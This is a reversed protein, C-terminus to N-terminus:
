KLNELVEEIYEIFYKLRVQKLKQGVCVIKNLNAKILELNEVDGQYFDKVNIINYISRFASYYFSLEKMTAREIIGKFKDVDINQAFGKNNSSFNRNYCYDYFDQASLELLASNVDAFEKDKGKRKQNVEFKLKDYLDKFKEYEKGQLYIGDHYTSLSVVQDNNKINTLMITHVEDLNTENFLRSYYVCYSLFPKYVNFPIKNEKLAKLNEKYCSLYEEDTDFSDMNMFECLTVNAKEFDLAQKRENNIRCYEGKIDQPVVNVFFYEYIYKYLTIKNNKEWEIELFPKNDFDPKRNIISSGTKIKISLYFISTIIKKIEEKSLANCADETILEVCKQFAYIATRLNFHKDIIAKFYLWELVDDDVIKELITNNFYKNIIERLSSVYETEFKLTDIITKEKIKKYEQAKDDLVWIEKEEEEGDKNKTKIKEIHTTLIEKENAIIIVKSGDEETLSNVFGLVKLVDVGSRELDELILVTKSLDFNKFLKEFDNDSINFNLDFGTTLKLTSILIQGGFRCINSANDILAKKTRTPKKLKNTRLAIFIRKSLEDLNNVGYLSVVACGKGSDEIKQKLKNHIFYSKGSGWAGDIMLAGKVKYESSIYTM